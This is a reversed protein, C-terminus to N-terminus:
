PRAALRQELEAMQRELDLLKARTHELVKAQLEFEDRTVLDLKEFSAHLVARVNKEIDKRLEHAGPPVANGIRRSLDDIFRLDIV